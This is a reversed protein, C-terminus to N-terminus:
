PAQREQESLWDQMWTPLTAAGGALLAPIENEVINLNLPGGNRALAEAIQAHRDTMNTALKRSLAGVGMTGLALPIGVMPGGLATGIGMTGLGFGGSVVGTPALRGIGRAWNSTPTGRNVTQIAEIVAPDFTKTGTEIAKDLGRYQTRLANEFGSGTFKGANAGALARAQELEQGQLYRSATERAKPLDPVTPDVLADIIDRTGRGVRAQSADASQAADAAVKRVTEMQVPDMTQGAYDKILTMAQKTNGHVENLKGSPSLVGEKTLYAAVDDSLQQTQVPDLIAGSNRAADYLIGAQAKLDDVSPVAEMAIDEATRRAANNALRNAASGAVLATTGGYLAGELPDESSMGGYLSGFVTDATVPNSLIPAAVKPAVTSLAKLGAGTGLTGTVGGAFDGILTPWPNESRMADMADGGAIRGPVGGLSANGYSLAGSTLDGLLGPDAAAGTVAKQITDAVGSTAPTFADASRSRRELAKRREDGLPIGQPNQENRTLSQHLFDLDEVSMGAKFAANMAAAVRKDESTSFPANPDLTPAGKDDLASGARSFDPAANVGQRAGPVLKLYESVYPEAPPRGVVQEPPLGNARAFEQANLREIGYAKALSAVKRNMEDRLGQAAGAPLGRADDYGFSKKFQEVKADWFGATNSAMESESERVVSGPDMVKAYAYILASDGQPNPATKLGSMLIPLVAKYDKVAQLNNFMNRAQALNDYRKDGQQFNQNQRQLQLQEVTIGLRAAEREDSNEARREQDPKFPDAARIVGQGGAQGPVLDGFPNDQAM